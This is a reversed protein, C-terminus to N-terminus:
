NAAPGVLAAFRPDDALSKLDPDNKAQDRAVYGTGFAKTLLEIAREREGALAYACAGNYWTIASVTGMDGAQAYAAGAEAYRKLNYLADGYVQKAYGNRPEAEVWAAGAEAAAPWDKALRLALASVPGARERRAAQYGPSLAEKMFALTQRVVARSADNDDFADFAHRGNPLNAVTVPANQAIARASWADISGNMWGLDLGARGIFIPLDARFIAPDMQGYYFVAAKIFTNAPDLAFPMVARVNASCSWLCVNEPDIKLDAAQARLHRMLDRLDVDAEAGRANYTVAAMGSAAALRAWSKYIGWDKLPIEGFDGVGNAFVVVPPRGGAAPTGQTPTGQASTAKAATGPPLYLDFALRREGAPKYVLNPRVTVKDMGPLSLVVKDNVFDPRPQAGAPAPAFAMLAVLAIPARLGGIAPVLRSRMSRDM